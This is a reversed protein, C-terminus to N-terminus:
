AGGTRVFPALAEVVDGPKQYRQAPDKAMMRAVVAALAEPIELRIENVPLANLSRHALLIDYTNEGAFPPGGTLLFYLTCGLSYIDARVDAKDAHIAQEPAMYTPTGLMQGEITLGTNTPAESTVKALGFDLIKVLRREGDPALILNQPKIDRHVMGKNFAHQLGLAVQQVCFCANLVLLPGIRKVVEALDLGEVYEMVLVLLDGAELATYMKVINPHHLRAAAQIERLFREKSGSRALSGRNMVKLVERRGSLRHRALYVVGTGGRGLERVVEYQSHNALEPPPM